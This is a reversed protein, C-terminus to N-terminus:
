VGPWSMIMVTAKYSMYHNWRKYKTNGWLSLGGTGFQIAYGGKNYGGYVHGRSLMDNGDIYGNNKSRAVGDVMTVYSSPGFSDGATQIAKTQTKPYSGGPTEHATTMQNSNAAKMFSHPGGGASSGHSGGTGPLFIRGYAAAGYSFVDALLFVNNSSGDISVVYMSPPGLSAVDNFPGSNKILTDVAMKSTNGSVDDVVLYDNVGDLSAGDLTELDKIRKNAM